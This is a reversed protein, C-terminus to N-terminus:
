GFTLVLAVGDKLDRWQRGLDELRGRASAAASPSTGAPLAFGFGSMAAVHASPGAGDIHAVTFAGVQETPLATAGLLAVAEEARTLDSFDVDPQEVVPRGHRVLTAQNDLLKVDVGDDIMGWFGNVIGLEQEVVLHCLDHPLLDGYSPFDWSVSSGDHRAVYIRDRRQRHRVFSATLAV